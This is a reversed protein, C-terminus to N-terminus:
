QSVAGLCPLFETYQTELLLILGSGSQFNTHCIRSSNSISKGYLRAIDHRPIYGLFNLGFFFFFLFSFQSWIDVCFNSPFM